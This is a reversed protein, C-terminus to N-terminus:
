EYQTYLWGYYIVDNDAGQYYRRGLHLGGMSYSCKYVVLFTYANQLPQCYPPADPFLMM